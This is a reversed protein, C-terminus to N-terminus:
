RHTRCCGPGCPREDRDGTRSAPVDVPQDLHRHTVGSNHRLCGAASPANPQFPFSPIPLERIPFKRETRRKRTPCNPTCTTFECRYIEISNVVPFLIAAGKPCCKTFVYQLFYLRGAIFVNLVRDDSIGLLFYMDLM